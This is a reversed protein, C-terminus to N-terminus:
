DPGIVSSVLLRYLIKAIDNVSCANQPQAVWWAISEAILTAACITGLEPPLWSNVPEEAAAVIRSQRLWEERMAAGAGGILLISWLLRHDAVYQGPARFGAAYDDADRIAL